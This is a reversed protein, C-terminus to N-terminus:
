GLITRLLVHEQVGRKKSSFIEFAIESWWFYIKLLILFSLNYIMSEGKWHCWTAGMFGKRALTIIKKLNQAGLDANWIEFRLFDYSQSPFTKHASCPTMTCPLTRDLIRLKESKWFQNKLQHFQTKGSLFDTYQRSFTIHFSTRSYM